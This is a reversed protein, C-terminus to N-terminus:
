QYASETDGFLDKLRKEAERAFAFSDWEDILKNVDIIEERVPDADSQLVGFTYQDSQLDSGNVDDVSGPDDVDDMLVGFTYLDSALDAGNVDDVRGLDPGSDIDSGLVGFTYQDSDLDAGNVDNVGGVDVEPDIDDLNVGFTYQDSQLDSGNVDDSAPGDDMDSLLVGFTNNADDAVLNEGGEGWYSGDNKLKESGVTSVIMPTGTGLGPNVSGGGDVGSTTAVTDTTNRNGITKRGDDIVAAAMTDATNRNGITKRGGVDPDVFVGSGGSSGGGSGGGRSVPAVAPATPMTLVAPNFALGTRPAGAFGSALGNQPNAYFRIGPNNSGAPSAARLAQILADPATAM